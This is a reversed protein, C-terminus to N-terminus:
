AKCAVASKGPLTVTVESGSGEVKYGGEGEFAKGKEAAKLKIPAATKEGDRLTASLDDSFFDVYVLGNGKCRYSKSAKLMPPLEAVPANALQDHMPDAITENVTETSNGGGCAALTMFLSLSLSTILPHKM